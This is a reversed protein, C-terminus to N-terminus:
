VFFKKQLTARLPKCIAIVMLAMGSLFLATLPYISWVLIGGTQFTVYLLYEVLVTFGGLAIMLGGTVYLYGKRLYRFLTVAATVILGLAGVIPFAFSLFWDGGVSFNIYLLYVSATAFACPVFIVPNPKKFWSPLVASVYILLLAGVAIGSWDIHGTIEFDCELMVLAAIAFGVTILFLIGAVSMMNRPKVATNPYLKEGIPIELDPHYVRTRCLPCRTESEALEVGCRICYM